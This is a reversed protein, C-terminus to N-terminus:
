KIKIIKSNSNKIKPDLLQYNIVFNCDYMKTKKKSGILFSLNPQSAQAVMATTYKVERAGEGRMTPTHIVSSMMIALTEAISKHRIM